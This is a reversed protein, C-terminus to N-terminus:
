VERSTPRSTSVHWIISIAQRTVSPCRLMIASTFLCLLVNIKNQLYFKDNIESFTSISFIEEAHYVITIIMLYM